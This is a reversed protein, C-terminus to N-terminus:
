LLLVLHQYIVCREPLEPLDCNSVDLKKLSKMVGISDPLKHLSKTDSLDLEELATLPWISYYVFLYVEPADLLYIM